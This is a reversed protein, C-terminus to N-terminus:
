SQLLVTSFSCHISKTNMKSKVSLSTECEFDNSVLHQLEKVLKNTIKVTVVLLLRHFDGLNCKHLFQAKM